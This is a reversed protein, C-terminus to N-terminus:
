SIPASACRCDAQNLWLATGGGSYLDYVAKATTKLLKAGGFSSYGAYPDGLDSLTLTISACQGYSDRAHARNGYLGSDRFGSLGGEGDFAVWYPFLVRITSPLVAQLAKDGAQLVRGGLLTNGDVPRNASLAAAADSWRQIAYTGDFARVVAGGINSACADLLAAVSEGDSYLASDPEPVGYVPDPTAFHIAGNGTQSMLWNILNSWSGQDDSGGTAHCHIPYTYTFQWFYRDDVLTILYVSPEGASGAIPKPPLLFLRTSVSGREDRMVFQGSGDAQGPTGPMYASGTSWIAKEIAALDEATAIGHFISWCSAGIPYYFDGLKPKPQTLPTPLGLQTLKPAPAAFGERSHDLWAFRELREVLEPTSLRLPVGAFSLEYSM